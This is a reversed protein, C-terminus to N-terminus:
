RYEEEEEKERKVGRKRPEISHLSNFINISRVYRSLGRKSEWYLSKWNWDACVSLNCSGVPQSYFAM